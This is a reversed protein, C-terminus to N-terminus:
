CAAIREVTSFFSCALPRRARCTLCPTSEFEEGPLRFGVPILKPDILCRGGDANAADRLFRHPPARASHAERVDRRRPANTRSGGSWTYTARLEEALYDPCGGCRRRIVGQNNELVRHPQRKPRGCRRRTLCAHARLARREHARRQSTPRRCAIPVSSHRSASWRRAPQM